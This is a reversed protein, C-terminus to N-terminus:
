SQTRPINKDRVDEISSFDYKRLLGRVFEPDVALLFSLMGCLNDINQDNFGLYIKHLRARIIKRKSREISVSGDNGLTLGTLTRRHKRSVNITKSENIGISLMEKALSVVEFEIVDLVNPIDTSFALDDAYRTYTVGEARCRENILNDFQWMVVNSVHPSSPAGISLRLSGSGSDYRFLLKSLIEFDKDNFRGSRIIEKRLLSPTISPFFDRFDMKLLFHNGAHAEAHSRINKNKVYAMACDSVPLNALEHSILFRQIYKLGSTPQSITRFGRGNRKKMLHDKYKRPATEIFSSLEDASLPLNTLLRQFLASM